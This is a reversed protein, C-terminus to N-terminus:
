LAEDIQDQTISKQAYTIVKLGYQAMQEVAGTAVDGDFDAENACGSCKEIVTEPAGKIIMLYNGPEAGESTDECIVIMTKLTQDFPQTLYLRWNKKTDKIQQNIDNEEDHDLFSVLGVELDSGRPVFSYNIVKNDLKIGGNRPDEAQMSVDNNLLIATKVLDQQDEPIAAEVWNQFSESPGEQDFLHHRVVRLTGDTLVGTKSVCIDTVTAAKQISEHNKVLIKSEKLNSISLSLAMQVALNLGEPVIVILLVISVVAMKTLRLLTTNSVLGGEGFLGMCVIFLVQTLFSVALIVLAADEVWNSIKKLKTELETTKGELLQFTGQKKSRSIKTKLGVACVIARGTGTLVKSDAFLFPDPNDVHNDGIVVNGDDDETKTKQSLSKSVSTDNPGTIISQDVTINMEEVLICDAPVRNGATVQIIDGVVVDKVLVNRPDGNGRYVTVEQNNIENKLSLWQSDKQYECIAQIFNAFFIGGYIMLAEVYASSGSSFYSFGLYLSAAWILYIVNTDEYQRPLKVWWFSEIQPMAVFHKGFYKRRRSLDGQDGIIGTHPSTDILRALGQVYDVAKLIQLSVRSEGENDPKVYRQRDFFMTLRDPEMRFVKRNYDEANNEFVGLM